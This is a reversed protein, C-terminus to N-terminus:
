WQWVPTLKETPFSQVRTFVIFRWGWRACPWLKFKRLTLTMILINWNRRGTGTSPNPGSEKLIGDRSAKLKDCITESGDRQKKLALVQDEWGIISLDGLVVVVGNVGVLWWWFLWIKVRTKTGITENRRSKLCDRM